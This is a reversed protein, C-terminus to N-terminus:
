PAPSESEQHLRMHRASRELDAYSIQWARSVDKHARRSLEAAQKHVCYTLPAFPFATCNILFEGADAKPLRPFLQRLRVLARENAERELPTALRRGLIDDETKM